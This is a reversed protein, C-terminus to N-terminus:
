HISHKTGSWSTAPEFGTPDTMDCSPAFMAMRGPMEANGMYLSRTNEVRTQSAVDDPDSVETSEALVVSCGCLFMRHNGMISKLVTM